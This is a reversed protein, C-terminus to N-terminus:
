RAITGRRPAALRLPCRRVPCPRAARGVRGARRPLGGRPGSQPQRLRADGPDHCLARCLPRQAHGVDPAPHHDQQAPRLWVRVRLLLHRAVARRHLASRCTARGRADRAPPAGQGLGRKGRPRAGLLVM